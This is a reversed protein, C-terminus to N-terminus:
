AQAFIHNYRNIYFRYTAAYDFTKETDVLVDQGLDNSTCFYIPEGDYSFELKDNAALAIDYVVNNDGKVEPDNNIYGALTAAPVAEGNKELSFLNVDANVPLMQWADGDWFIYGKTLDYGAFLYGQGTPDDEETPLKKEGDNFIINTHTAPVDVKYLGTAADLVMETGPWTTTSTANWSHAYMKAGFDSPKAFYVVKNDYPYSEGDKDNMAWDVELHVVDQSVKAFDEDSLGTIKVYVTVQHGDATNQGGLYLKLQTQHDEQVAPDPLQGLLEATDPNADKGEYVYVNFHDLLRPDDEGKVVTPLTADSITVKFLGNYTTSSKLGVVGAKRLENNELKDIGTLASGQGWELTVYTTEEPEPTPGPTYDAGKPSALDTVAFAAFTGGV